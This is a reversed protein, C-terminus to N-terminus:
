ALRRRATNWGTSDRPPGEPRSKWPVPLFHLVCSLPRPGNQQARSLEERAALEEGGGAARDLRREM